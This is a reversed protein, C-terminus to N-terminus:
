NYTSLKIANREPNVFGPMKVLGCTGILGLCSLALSLGLDLGHEGLAAALGLSLGCNSWALLKLM